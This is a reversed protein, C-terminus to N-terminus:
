RPENATTHLMEILRQGVAPSLLIVNISGPYIKGNSRLAAIAEADERHHLLLFDVTQTLQTEIERFARFGAGKTTGSAQDIDRLSLWNQYDNM